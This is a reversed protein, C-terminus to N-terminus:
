HQNIQRLNLFAKEHNPDLELVKHYTAIAAEVEGQAQLVEGLNYHASVLDPQLAIAQRYYVTATQWDKATQRVTGLGYNLHAYHSHKEPPLKGLAYLANGLNVEAETCNPQVELAKQYCAIAAEWDGQQQRTYGLNNHISAADPRLALAQQYAVEAAPLQGQAQRLNGLSFWIKVSNPQAQAAASLCQEAAELNGTQQTLMGLGFLAEPHQPQKALVQQYLHEAETWHQERQHQVALQLTIAVEAENFRRPKHVVQLLFDELARVPKLDNYLKQKNNAVQQSLHQRYAADKGLRVALKIYEAKSSAITEEMGMMKLIAMTHRGRMLEGALTVVPVNHAIAELTSNCGSWGISDLFVDSIASMGAFRRFEMRPVFLCHDESNLGFGRFVRHLRQHFVETIQEVRHEIFVFKCKTLERAIKPFVDDHQPLYKYLSQCCWFMIDDEAIGIESKQIAEPQLPLPTYYISLNPLRILQETYHEQANAPEMLDSSLYYDITPLGSTEPHGWSTIQIPALRLCGLRVTLPDMGFEPFILVHLKDRHILECWQELPLPGQIFKDFTKAAVVTEQDHLPETHYGYLEFETRDLNEIWGKIPIKWNSHAKFFGSVLGIRVKEDAALTPLSLPQSWQPYRSTMLQCIVNGYIQQLSRDNLGQYTLYFPQTTGVAEAAKVREQFDARQYHQALNELAQQYQNRRLTVEDSTSYIIPLYNMCHGFRASASDPQLDLAQQFVEAAAEIEGQESLANGLNYYYVANPNLSIAQRYAAIAAERDQAKLANGLNNHIQARDPRLKLAQQYCDIAAGFRGQDQFISGLNNHAEVFEPDLKLAHQYLEIAAKLKAQEHLVSGLGLVIQYYLGGLVTKAVDLRELPFQLLQKYLLEADEWQESQHKQLAIQILTEVESVSSLKRSM